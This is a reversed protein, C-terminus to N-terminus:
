DHMQSTCEFVTVRSFTEIKRDKESKPREVDTKLTQIQHRPTGPPYFTISKTQFPEKSCSTIDTEAKM